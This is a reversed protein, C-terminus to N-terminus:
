GSFPPKKTIAARLLFLGTQLPLHVAGAAVNLRAIEEVTVEVTL